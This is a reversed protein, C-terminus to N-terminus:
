IRPASQHHDLLVSFGQRLCLSAGSLAQERGPLFTETLLLGSTFSIAHYRVQFEIMGDQMYYEPHRELIAKNM